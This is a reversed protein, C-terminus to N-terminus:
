ASIDEHIRTIDVDMTYAHEEMPNALVNCVGALVLLDDKLCCRCRSNGPAMGKLGDMYIDMNANVCFKLIDVWGAVRKAIGGIVICRSM